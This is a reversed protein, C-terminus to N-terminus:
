GKRIFSISPDIQGTTTQDLYTVGLAVASWGHRTVGYLPGPDQKVGIAAIRGGHRDMLACRINADTARASHCLHMKVARRPMLIVWGQHAEAFRGTWFVTGFIERGVPMGFSEIQELVLDAGDWAIEHRLAHALDPNPLYQCSDIRMGSFCVLASSEYGPDIALLTEAAPRPRDM